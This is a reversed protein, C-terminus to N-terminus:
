AYFLSPYEGGYGLAGAVVDWCLTLSWITRCTAGYLASTTVNPISEGKNWPYVAFLIAFKCIASFTWGFYAMWMPLKFLTSYSSMIFVGTAVGITYASLHAVPRFFLKTAYEELMDVFDVRRVQLIPVPPYGKM